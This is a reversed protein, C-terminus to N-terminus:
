GPPKLVHLRLPLESILCMHLISNVCTSVARIFPPMHKIHACLKCFIAYFFRRQTIKAVVVVVVVVFVSKSRPNYGKKKYVKIITVIYASYIYSNVAVSLINCIM